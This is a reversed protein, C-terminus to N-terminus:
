QKQWILGGSTNLKVVWFDSEGLCSESKDGGIGSASSGGAMFGGGSLEIISYVKDDSAGGITNQWVM